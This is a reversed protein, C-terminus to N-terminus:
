QLPRARRHVVLGVLLALWGVISALSAGPPGSLQLRASDGAYLEAWWGGLPHLLLVERWSQGASWFTLPLWTCITASLFAASRRGSQGVALLLLWLVALTVLTAALFATLHWPRGIETAAAPGLLRRRGWDAAGTLAGAGTSAASFAGLGVACSALDVLVTSPAGLLYRDRAVSIDVDMGAVSVVLLAALVPGLMLAAQLGALAGGAFGLTTLQDLMVAPWCTALIGVAAGGVMLWRAMPRRRHVGLRGTLTTVM